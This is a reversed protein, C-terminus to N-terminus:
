HMKDQYIIDNYTPITIKESRNEKVRFSQLLFIFLHKNLM